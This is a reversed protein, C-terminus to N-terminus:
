RYLKRYGKASPLDGAPIAPFRVLSTTRGKDNGPAAKPCLSAAQFKGHHEYEVEDAGPTRVPAGEGRLPLSKGRCVFLSLLVGETMRGGDEGSLNGRGDPARNGRQHAPFGASESTDDHDSGKAQSNKREGEAGRDGRDRESDKMRGTNVTIAPLNYM